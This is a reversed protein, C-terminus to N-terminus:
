SKQEEEDGNLEYKLGGFMRSLQFIQDETLDAIDPGDTNCFVIDGAIWDGDLSINPLRGKLKGEEDCVIKMGYPVNVFELFGGVIDGLAECTNDITTITPALDSVRLIAVTIRDEM